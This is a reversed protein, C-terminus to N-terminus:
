FEGTLTNGVLVGTSEGPLGEGDRFGADELAQDVVELALWHTLDVTRFTSGAVRFRVRDFEYGELVAAEAAYIADPTSPDASLYDALALREPPLKRFARRQALANEWLEEPSSADPYRCAMGVIAVASMIDPPERHGAARRPGSRRRSRGGVGPGLVGP